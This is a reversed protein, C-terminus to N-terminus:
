CDRDAIEVVPPNGLTIPPTYRVGCATSAKSDRHQWAGNAFSFASMEAPRLTRTITAASPYGNIMSVEGGPFMMVTPEDAAAWFANALNAASAVSGALALTQSKRTDAALQIQRPVALAALVALCSVLM